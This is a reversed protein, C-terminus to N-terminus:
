LLHIFIFLFLEQNGQPLNAMGRMLVRIGTGRVSVRSFASCMPAPRVSCVDLLCSSYWDSSYCCVSVHCSNVSWSINRSHSIAVLICRQARCLRCTLDRRRCSVLHRSIHMGDPCLVKRVAPEPVMWRCEM